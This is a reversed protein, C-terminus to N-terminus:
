RTEISPRRSTASAIDDVDLYSTNSALVAGPRAHADIQRFVAQKVALDEFVAEIVM